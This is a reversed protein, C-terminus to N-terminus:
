EATVLTYRRSIGAGRGKTVLEAQLAGAAEMADLANEVVERPKGRLKNVIIGETEMMGPSRVLVRAVRLADASQEPSLRMQEVLKQALAMKKIMENRANVDRTNM